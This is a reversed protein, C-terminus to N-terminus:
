KHEIQDHLFKIPLSNLFPATACLSFFAYGSGTKLYDFTTLYDNERMYFDFIYFLSLAACVYIQHPLVGGAKNYALYLLGAFMVAQFALIYALLHASAKLVVKFVCSIKAVGCPRFRPVQILIFFFFVYDCILFITSENKDEM